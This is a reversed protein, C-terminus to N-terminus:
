TGDDTPIVDPNKRAETNLRRVLIFSVILIIGVILVLVACTILTLRGMSKQKSGAITNWYNIHYM